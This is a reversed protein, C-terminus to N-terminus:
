LGVLKLLKDFDPTGLGTVPDWGPAAEFGVDEGNCELTNNGATVDNLGRVGTAYLWPNLFGLPAKGRAALRDNLLAVVGAFVPSAASTGFLSATANEWVRFDDAKASVDPFARGSANFRGASATANSLTALYTTVATSQYAPTPYYNSFGGSSGGWVEEPASGQTGGVSTVYPCNSPFTPVFSTSNQKCGVGSDGAAYLISVGRAGLQAYAKCLKDTLEFSLSSEAFGYSTTLVQPPTDLSLLHNVEDLYGELDGDQHKIGVMIYNVPVGTALGVTYQIDLEGESVSPVDQDNNGGDLLTVTFNTAPDMDPRYQKLFEELFTYHVNNGFRGTVGLTNSAVTAPTTPINYLEQLCAPTTGNSCKSTQDRRPLLPEHFARKGVILNSQVPAPFATTPHILDVHGKLAAPISYALTRVAQLGSDGQAFLSYNAALLTNATSVDVQVEMWDGAPTLATANLGHEALWANVATVSAADPAALQAAETKSLHQGYTDSSPDSVSYLADVVADSTKQALAIRLTLPTKPAALAKFSFGFPITDRSDHVLLDRSLKLSALPTALAFTTFLSLALLRTHVVM